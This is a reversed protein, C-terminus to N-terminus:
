ASFTIIAALLIIFKNQIFSSKGEIQM